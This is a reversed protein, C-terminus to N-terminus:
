SGYLSEFSEGHARKDLLALVAAFGGHAQTWREVENRAQCYATVLAKNSQNTFNMWDRPSDLESLKDVAHMDPTCPEEKGLYTATGENFWAPVSRGNLRAKFERHSLEHTMTEMAYLNSGPAARAQRLIVITPKKFYFQGGYRNPGPETAFSRMTPGGFFRACGKTKCWVILTDTAKQEGYAAVINAKAQSLNNRLTAREEESLADEYWLEGEARMVPVGDDDAAASAPLPHMFLFGLLVATKIKTKVRVEVRKSPQALANLKRM